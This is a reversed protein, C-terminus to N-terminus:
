DANKLFEALQSPIFTMSSLNMYVVRTKDKTMLVAKKGDKWSYFCKNDKLGAPMSIGKENSADILVLKDKYFILKVTEGQKFFFIAKCPAEDTSEKQLNGEDHYYGSPYRVDKIDMGLTFMCSRLVFSSGPIKKTEPKRDEIVPKEVPKEEVIVESKTAVEKIPEKKTQVPSNQLVIPNDASRPKQLGIPIQGTSQPPPNSVIKLDISSLSEEREAHIVARHVDTLTDALQDAAQKASNLDNTEFAKEIKIKALERAQKENIKTLEDITAKYVNEQHQQIKPLEEKNVIQAVPTNTQSCASM